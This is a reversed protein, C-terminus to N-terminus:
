QVVDMEIWGFRLWTWPKWWTGCWVRWAREELRLFVGNRDRVVAYIAPGGCQPCPHHPDRVRPCGPCDISSMRVSM